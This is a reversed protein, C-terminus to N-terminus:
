VELTIDNWFSVCDELAGGDTEAKCWENGTKGKPDGAKIKTPSWVDAKKLTHKLKLKNSTKSKLSLKKLGAKSM